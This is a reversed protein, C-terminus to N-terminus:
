LILIQDFNGLSIMYRCAHELEREVIALDQFADLEDVGVGSLDPEVFHSQSGDLLTNTQQSELSFDNYDYQSAQTDGGSYELFSFNEDDQTNQTTFREM